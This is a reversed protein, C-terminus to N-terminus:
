VHIRKSLSWSTNGSLLTFFVLIRLGDLGIISGRRSRGRIIWYLYITIILFSLTILLWRFHFNRSATKPKFRKVDRHFTEVRARKFYLPAKSATEADSAILTILKKGKWFAILWVDATNGEGSRMRYPTVLVAEKPLNDVLKKVKATKKAGIIFRVGHNRLYNVVAVDYFYRDLLVGSPRLELEEASKLAIEIIDTKLVPFNLQWITLPIYSQRSIAVATAYLLCPSGREDNFVFRQFRGYYPIKTTDVAIWAQRIGKEAIMKRVLERQRKLVVEVDSKVAHLYTTITSPAAGLIAIAQSSSIAAHLSLNIASSIKERARKPTTPLLPILSSIEERVVPILRVLNRDKFGHSLLLAKSEDKTMHTMLLVSM